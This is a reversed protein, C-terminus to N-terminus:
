KFHDLDFMVLSIPGGGRDARALEEGLRRRFGRVNLLQTLPDTLALASLHANEAALRERQARLRDDRHGLFWGFASFAILPGVLLYAYLEPEAVVAAMPAGHHFASFALWGLPAGLALAAGAASSRAAFTRPLPLSM